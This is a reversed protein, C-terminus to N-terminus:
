PLGFLVRTLRGLSDYRSPEVLPRVSLFRSIMAYSRKDCSRLEKPCKSYAYVKSTLNHRAALVSESKLELDMRSVSIFKSVKRFRGASQDTELDETDDV